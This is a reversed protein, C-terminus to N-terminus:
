TIPTFIFTVNKFPPRTMIEAIAHFNLLEYPIQVRSIYNNFM